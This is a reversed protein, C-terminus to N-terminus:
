GKLSAARSAQAQRPRGATPQAKVAGTLVRWLKAIRRAAKLPLRLALPAPVHCFALKKVQVHVRWDAVSGAPFFVMDGPGFQRAIGDDGTITVSGALFHITEDFSYRWRFSGPTCDWLMTWSSGDTSRALVRNRAQPAGGTIWSPEIPASELPLSADFAAIPPM